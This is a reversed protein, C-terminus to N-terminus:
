RGMAAWYGGDRWDAPEAAGQPWTRRSSQLRWQPQEQVFRTVIQENEAPEISCTSYMLGTRDSALADAQKLLKMQIESLSNLLRVDMRYRAEPRRAFVGSNGCPADVLIWDVQDLKEMVGALEALPTTRISTLGLRRANERLAVLKHKDKDCAIIVGEDGMIEAMYTAKTGLGACLDVVVQGGRLGMHKVPLMATPDQPQFWGENFAASRKVPPGGLLVVMDDKGALRAEFGESKLRDVLGTADTRLRNPRLFLPPRYIGARCIERVREVGFVSVWRRVLDVPHSTAYALHEIPQSNPDPLFASKFQCCLCGDV